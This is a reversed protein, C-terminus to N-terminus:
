SVSHLTVLKTYFNKGLKISPFEIMRALLEAVLLSLVVVVVGTHIASWSEGITQNVAYLIPLHVLYLSYSIRGLWILVNHSLAAGFKRDGLALAILGLAGLGRMQDVIGDIFLHNDQDARLLCYAFVVFLVTKTHWTLSAIKRAVRDREIALYAGGAFFVIFYTTDLFSKTLTEEDYGLVVTGTTYLSWLTSAVSIFWCVLISRWGYRNVAFLIVPFVLSIRMEHVLSWMVNDLGISGKTGWMTLHKLLVAFSLDPDVVDRFWNSGVDHHVGIIRHLAYSSLIVFLFVPYIRFIRKVVYGVYSTPQKLLSYALVFGSLVFFIIVASRGSALVKTAFYFLFGTVSGFAATLSGASESSVTIYALWCHHLVVICAAAGRISDLYGLREGKVSKELPLLATRRASDDFPESYAKMALSLRWAIVYTFLGCPRDVHLSMTAAHKAAVPLSSMLSTALILKALHRERGRM